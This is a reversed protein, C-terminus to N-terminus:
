IRLMRHVYYGKTDLFVMGGQSFSENLKGHVSEKLEMLLPYPHQKSKVEVVLSSDSKHHVMFGGVPCDEFRVGLHSLSHVDKVFEKNEEQM